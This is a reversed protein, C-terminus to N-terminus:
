SNGVHLKPTGLVTLIVLAFAAVAVRVIPLVAPVRCGHVAIFLVGRPIGHYTPPPVTSPHRNRNPMGSRRRFHRAKSPAVTKRSAVIPATVAHPPTFM